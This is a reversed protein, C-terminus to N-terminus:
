RLMPLPSMTLLGPRREQIRECNLGSERRRCTCHTELESGSAAMEGCLTSLRWDGEDVSQSRLSYGACDAGPGACLQNMEMERAAMQLLLTNLWGLLM